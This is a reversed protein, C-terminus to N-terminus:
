LTNHDWKQPLSGMGFGQTLLSDASTPFSLPIFLWVLNPFLRASVLRKALQDNGLTQTPSSWFRPYFLSGGAGPRCKLHPGLFFFLRPLFCFLWQSFDFSLSRIFVRHVAWRKRRLFSSGIVCAIAWGRPYPFSLSPFWNM